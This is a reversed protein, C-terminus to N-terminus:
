AKPLPVRPLTVTFTSGQGAVSAVTVDGGLLRALRRTVSLGLGTGGVRRSATQEVQWFPDFIRDLHDGGIGIGTDRVEFTCVSSDCAASIAISGADTFKVANTLLNTLIQRLKLIDTTCIANDNVPQIFIPLRKASAMPRVLAAAEELITALTVDQHVVREQGAELRSFSLVEDILGLLHAASARVRTLQEQQAPSIPGTIGESLLESYGIIANLPTRLEHSMSALFESKSRNAAAAARFLEANEIAIASRRAIEEVLPLDSETYRRGSEAGILTIAGLTRGHASMPVILASRMQLERILHLNEVDVAARVLMDDAVDSYLESRGTRIVNPVGATARHDAAYRQSIDRAWRVKDPNAHAVALTEISGDPTLVHVSCWDALAPTVLQAVAHLTNRYELSESLVRGAEALLAKESERARRETIDTAIGVVGGLEGHSDYWPSRAVEFYRGGLGRDETRITARATMVDQEAERAREAMDPPAFDFATKGLLDAPAMGVIAAGAHNIAIFRGDGDKVFMTDATSDLLANLVATSESARREAVHREEIDRTISILVQGRPIVRTEMWHGVSPAFREFLAPTQTAAASRLARDWDSHRINPLADFVSQGIVSEPDIGGDQVLSSAAANLRLIRFELDFVSVADPLADIVELLLELDTLQSRRQDM